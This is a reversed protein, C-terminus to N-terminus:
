LIDVCVLLLLLWSAISCTQEPDNPCQVLTYLSVEYKALSTHIQDQWTPQLYFSLSLIPVCFSTENQACFM